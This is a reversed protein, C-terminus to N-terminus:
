GGVLWAPDFWRDAPGDYPLRTIDWVQILHAYAAWVSPGGGVFVRRGKFRAIVEEPVMHSRIEVVTREERAWDPVSAVTRPGAILVHGRTLEFFREVDAVFEPRRDGEWPLWGNLGLQGRLGIACMSRVDAM